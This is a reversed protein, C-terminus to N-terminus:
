LSRERVVQAIDLRGLARLGPRQSILAVILLALASLALTSARMQLNFTFLDSTFSAMFWRAVLYGALLGLPIAATVVLTSEATIMGALRRRSIGAARLTALEVSREAINSSMANFLLALALAAGFALMMAVFAYFFGLLRNFSDLLARSERVAGVGPLAALAEHVRSRDAGPRYRVLATNALQTGEATVAPLADLSIYVYTGLPEDLFGRVRTSFALGIGTVSIHVSGGAGVGIRERLAAGALIGDRPLQTREFGHMQTGPALALLSTTYRRGAHSLLVPLEAASEVRAVGPVRQIEQLRAPTLPGSFYIQADQREVDTFQRNALIQVTDIMGWSVLVLTLALVVGLVTAASRRPNREIGRLILRWQAPLRRLPPILREALSRRGGRSPAFRRMAEAPPVRSAALAPAGAAALGALLGFAIGLVPTWPSLRTVSVPISLSRTYIHTLQGALGVGLIAGAVGGGLGTVAGFGLYHRLVRGRSLGAARLMGIIPRQEAVMRTLVVSSALAAATLFLLPFMVALEGFGRVDEQLASNSPQETRVSATTAGAAYAARQLKRALSPAERGGDFYVAVQNSARVGALRTALEEPVFLVAFEGPANLIEQRSLAPWYYEPSAAVGVISVRRSGSAGAVTVNAGPALHFHTATHEEVLVGSPRGPQLYSGRKVQVRDVPPQAAAPMGVIRGLLKTGGIKLPVDAQVRTGAAAVGTTARALAAIRSTDGGEILLNAFRYRVFAADYSARLSRYAEFTAGFLAVGLLMTLAVAGFQARQRRLDRRLKRRLMRV